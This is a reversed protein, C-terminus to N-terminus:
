IVGIDSLFSNIESSLKDTETNNYIVTDCNNIFFDDNKQASIRAKAQEYTICDRKM